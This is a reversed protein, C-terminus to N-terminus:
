RRAPDHIPQKLGPHADSFVIEVDFLDREELGPLFDGWFPSQHLYSARALVGQQATYVEPGFCRTGSQLHRETKFVWVGWDSSDRASATCCSSAPLPSRRM